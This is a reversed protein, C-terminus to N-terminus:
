YKTNIFRTGDHLINQFQKHLSIFVINSTENHVVKLCKYNQIYGLVM